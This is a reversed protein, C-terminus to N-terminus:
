RTLPGLTSCGRSRSSAPAALHAWRDILRATEQDMLADFECFAALEVNVRGFVADDEGLSVELVAPAPDKM